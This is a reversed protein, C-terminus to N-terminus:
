FNKIFCLKILACDQQQQQSGKLNLAKSIRYHILPIDNAITLCVIKKSKIIKKVLYKDGRISTIIKYDAFKLGPASSNKDIAFIKLSKKYM